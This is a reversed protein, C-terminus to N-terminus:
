DHQMLKYKLEALKWDTETDIDQTETELLEMGVTKENFLKGSALFSQTKLMYFQGADHYSLPLDQSRSNLHEPYNFQIFGNEMKLSRQIPFGYKVMSVVGDAETTKLLTAAEILKEATIFPATPYLVTVFEFSKGLDNYNSLVEMVVDATTAFDNANQSSRMFPVAAGLSEAITKITADDTSVMVESFLGSTLAAGISYGIIPKGCFSKINKGPIRKSGGRAPIIALM